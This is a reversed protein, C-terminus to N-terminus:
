RNLEKADYNIRKRGHRSFYSAKPARRAHNSYYFKRKLRSSVRGSQKFGRYTGWFQMLRFSLSEFWRDLFVGEHLAIKYDSLINTSGLVVFDKFSFKEDDFIRKFAIAERRYRNYTELPKEDHVHIVGADEQYAIDYGAALAWKAWDIDELGTLTEDYQRQDWLSARIATNANNCFPHDQKAVPQDPFWNAFVQHEAFKTDRNGRQKGYVLAVKPDSFPRILKELWDTYEPYVHASVIVLFDGTAARCGINLSRGFSFEEPRISLVKVPYEGAISLTGDTSGSDVLIIEVPEFIQQMIGTLLRGIHKEENYSRIIISVKAM